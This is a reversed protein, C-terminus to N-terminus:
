SRVARVASYALVASFGGVFLVCQASMPLSVRGVLFGTAAVWVVIAVALFGDDVFLSVLEELVRAIGGGSQSTVKKGPQVSPTYRARCMLVLAQAVCFYAIILALLSWDADPWELHVGEGVWFTGFAALLIGVGFKLTNEPISGLPRHLAVGLAVVVLLAAIAGISASVLQAGSAGLAIVIFVVEIGELMVIKFAASLAVHDWAGGSEGLRLLSATEKAYVAVEDHKAIVGASRLIAKRLWRLGFLLLLTGIFVQVIPLPIRAISRGFIAVLALLLTLAAVAGTLASRWGRVAGVALVVTLAEIFEVLSAMFSALVTPATSAWGAM